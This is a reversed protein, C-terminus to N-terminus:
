AANSSRNVFNQPLTTMELSRFHVRIRDTRFRDNSLLGLARITLDAQCLCVIAMIDIIFVGLRGVMGAKGKGFRLDMHTVDSKWLRGGVLRDLMYFVKCSGSVLQRTVLLGHVFGRACGVISQKSDSILCNVPTDDSIPDECNCHTTEFSELKNSEVASVVDVVELASDWTV